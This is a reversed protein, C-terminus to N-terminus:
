INNRPSRSCLHIDRSCLKRFLHFPRRLDSLERRDSLSTNIRTWSLLLRTNFIKDRLRSCDKISILTNGMYDVVPGVGERLFHNYPFNFFYPEAFSRGNFWGIVECEIGGLDNEQVFTSVPAYSCGLVQRGTGKLLDYKSFWETGDCIIWEYEHLYPRWSDVFNLLNEGIISQKRNKLFVSVDESKSIKYAIGLSDGESSLFLVKM